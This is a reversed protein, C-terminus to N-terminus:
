LIILLSNLKILVNAHQPGEVTSSFNDLHFNSKEASIM